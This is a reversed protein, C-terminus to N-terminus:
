ALGSVVAAGLETLRLARLRLGAPWGVLLAAGGVAVIVALLILTRLTGTLLGM